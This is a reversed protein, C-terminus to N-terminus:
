IVLIVVIGASRIKSFDLRPDINGNNGNNSSNRITRLRFFFGALVFNRLNGTNGSNWAFYFILFKILIM